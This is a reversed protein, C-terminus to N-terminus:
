VKSEDSTDGTDNPTYFEIEPAADLEKSRIVDASIWAHVHTKGGYAARESARLRVRKNVYRLGQLAEAVRMEAVKTCDKPKLDLAYQMLDITTMYPRGSEQSLVPWVDTIWKEILDEFPETIKFRKVAEAHAQALEGALYHPEDTAAIMVAEAWLQDRWKALTDLDIDSVVKICWFRRAGTPDTLFRENNTSGVIVCSREFREVNRAYPPRFDDTCRSIFAKVEGAHRATTIRDIEGWETIWNAHIQQLGDKDGIRIETSGFWKGALVQFFTSKKRGQHGILILADDAKIGPNLARRVTAVFWKRVMARDLDTTQTDPVNLVHSIVYDIRSEGDWQLASLYERVPHYTRESAVTFLADFMNSKDPSFGGWPADECRERIQGAKEEPLPKGDFEVAQTMLNRRLKGKFEPAHRFVKCLNGFTPKVTRGQRILTSEWDTSDSDSLANDSLTVRPAQQATEGASMVRSVTAHETTPKAKGKASGECAESVVRDVADGTHVSLAVSASLADDIGKASSPDWTEVEVTFGAERYVKVALALGRAVHPNSRMDADLAVRVTTCNLAKLVSVASRASTCSAIGLTHVGSLHTAIDAKLPGETVRVVAHMPSSSLPSHCPAGPGPGDDSTSSLWRYKGGEKADDARIKCAVVRGRTDRVPIVIGEVGSLKGRWLGPIHDPIAGGLASKVQALVRKRQGYPPMTRYGYTDIAAASLGRAALAARHAPSLALADLLASYVSHLTNADATPTTDADPKYRETSAGSPPSSLWHFGYPTGDSLERHTGDASDIERMCLAAYGDRSVMCWSDAGCVPCPDRRTVRSFNHITTM